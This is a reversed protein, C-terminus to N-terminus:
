GTSCETQRLVSRGSGRMRKIASAYTLKPVVANAEPGYVMPEEFVTVASGVTGRGDVVGQMTWSRFLASNSLKSGTGKLKVGGASQGPGHAFTTKVASMLTVAPM